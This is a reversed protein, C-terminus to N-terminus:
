VVMQEEIDDPSDTTIIAMEFGDLDSLLPFWHKQDELSFSTLADKMEIGQVHAFYHKDASVHTHTHANPLIRWVDEMLESHGNRATTDAVVEEKIDQKQAKSTRKRFSEVNAHNAM